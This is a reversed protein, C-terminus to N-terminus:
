SFRSPAGDIDTKYEDMANSDRLRHDRMHQELDTKDGKLQVFDETREITLDGKQQMHREICKQLSQIDGRVKECEACADTKHPGM